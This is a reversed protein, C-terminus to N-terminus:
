ATKPTKAKAALAAPGENYPVFEGPKAITIKMQCENRKLADLEEVYIPGDYLDLIYSGYRITGDPNNLMLITYGVIDYEEEIVQRSMVTHGTPNEIEPKLENYQLILYINEELDLDWIMNYLDKYWTKQENFYVTKEKDDHYAKAATLPKEPRVPVSSPTATGDATGLKANNATNIATAIKNTVGTGVASALTPARSKPKPYFLGKSTYFCLRGNDELLIDKGVQMACTIRVFRNMTYGKTWHLFVQIGDCSYTPDREPKLHMTVKPAINHIEPVYYIHYYAPECRVENIEDERPYAIRMWM